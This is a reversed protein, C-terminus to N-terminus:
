GPKCGTLIATEKGAEGDKWHLTAKDGRTWWDYSSGGSPWRYRAGSAAPEHYLLNQAGEVYIVALSTEPASIYVVPV